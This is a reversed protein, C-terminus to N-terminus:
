DLMAVDAAAGIRGHCTLPCDVLYAQRAERKASHRKICYRYM